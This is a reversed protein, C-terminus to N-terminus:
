TKPETWPFARQARFADLRSLGYDPARRPARRDEIAVSLKAPIIPM